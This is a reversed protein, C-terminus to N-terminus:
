EEEANGGPHAAIWQSVSSELEKVQWASWKMTIFDTVERVVSQAVGKKRSKEQEHMSKQIELREWLTEALTNSTARFSLGVTTVAKILLSMDSSLYYNVVGAKEFCEHQRELMAIACRVIYRQSSELLKGEGDERINEIADMKSIKPFQHADKSLDTHETDDVPPKLTFARKRSDIYITPTQNRVQSASFTLVDSGYLDSGFTTFAVAPAMNGITTM